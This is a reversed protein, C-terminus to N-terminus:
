YRWAPTFKLSRGSKELVYSGGDRRLQQTPRLAWGAADVDGRSHMVLGRHSDALAKIREPHGNEPCLADGIDILMYPQTAGAHAQRIAARTSELATQWDLRQQDVAAYCASLWPLCWADCGSIATAEGILSVGVPSGTDDFGLLIVGRADVQPRVPALALQLTQQYADSGVVRMGVQFFSRALMRVDETHAALVSSDIPAAPPVTLAVLLRGDDSVSADCWPACTVPVGTAPDQQEYIFQAPLRLQASNWAAAFAQAPAQVQQAASAARHQQVRADVISSIYSFLSSFFYVM